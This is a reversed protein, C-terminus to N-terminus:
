NEVRFMIKERRSAKPKAQEEREPTKLYFILSNIRSRKKTSASVAIFKGKLMAEMVDWLYKYTTDEKENM